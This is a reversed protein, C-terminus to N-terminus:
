ARGGVGGGIGKSGKLDKVLWIFFLVIFDLCFRRFGCNGGVRRLGSVISRRGDRIGGVGLCM